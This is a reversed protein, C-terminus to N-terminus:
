FGREKKISHYAKFISVFRQTAQEFEEDSLYDPLADPHHLRVLRRFTEKIEETSNQPHCGLIDYAGLIRVSFFQEEKTEEKQLSLRLIKLFYLTENSPQKNVRILKDAQFLLWELQENSNNRQLLSVLLSSFTINNRITFIMRKRILTIEWYSLKVLNEYFLVYELYKWQSSNMGGDSSILRSLLPFAILYFELQEQYINKQLRWDFFYFKLDILFGLIGWLIGIPFGSIWIGVGMFLFAFM